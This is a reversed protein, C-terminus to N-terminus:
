VNPTSMGSSGFGAHNGNASIVRCNNATYYKFFVLQAIRDGAKVVLDTDSHNYLMINIEDTYDSDIVGSAPLVGHKFALGSRPFLQGYYGHEITTKVGTRFSKSGKAPVVGDEISTIDHGASQDTARYLPINTSIIPHTEKPTRSPYTPSEVPYDSLYADNTPYYQTDGYMDIYDGGQHPSEEFEKVLKLKSRGSPEAKPASKRENEFKRKYLTKLRAAIVPPVNIEALWADVEDSTREDATVIPKLNLVRCEDIDYGNIVDAFSSYDGSIFQVVLLDFKSM